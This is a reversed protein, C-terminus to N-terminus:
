NPIYPLPMTFSSGCCCPVVRLYGEDRCPNASGEALGLLRASRRVYALQSRLCPGHQHVVLCACLNSARLVDLLYGCFPQFMIAGPFTANIWSYQQPGIHLDKILTPAAVSLTSRTLYNVTAGLM